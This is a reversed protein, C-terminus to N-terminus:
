PGALGEPLGSHAAHCAHKEVLALITMSSITM